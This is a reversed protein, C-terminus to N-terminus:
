AAGILEDVARQMEEVHFPKSFTRLAGLLNAAHLYDDASGIGGGSVAIIKVSPDTHRLEKITELGEMEPMIIDTIVLDFVGTSYINLAEKGNFASAVRYGRKELLRRILSNVMPDDDVVLIQKSSQGNM